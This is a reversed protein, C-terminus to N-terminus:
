SLVNIKLLTCWSSLWNQLTWLRWSTFLYISQKVQSKVQSTVSCTRINKNNKNELNINIQKVLNVFIKFSSKLSIQIFHSWPKVNLCNSDSFRFYWFHNSFIIFLHLDKWVFVCQNKLNFNFYNAMKVELNNKLSPSFVFSSIDSCCWFNTSFSASVSRLFAIISASFSALTALIWKPCFIM